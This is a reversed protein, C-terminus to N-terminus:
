AARPQFRASPHISVKLQAADVTRQLKHKDRERESELHALKSRLQGISAQAQGDVSRPRPANAAAHPM